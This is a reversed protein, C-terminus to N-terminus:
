QSGDDGMELPQITDKNQPIDEIQPIIEAQPFRQKM